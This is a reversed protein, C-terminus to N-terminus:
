VIVTSACTREICTAPTDCTDAMKHLFGEYSERVLLLQSSLGLMRLLSLSLSVARRSCM